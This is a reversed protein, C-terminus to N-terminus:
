IKWNLGIIWCRTPALLGDGYYYTKDFINEIEGFISLRRFAYEARLDAVTYEPVSITNSKNRYVKSSYKGSAVISLAKLPKWYINATASHKAKCALWLGTEDDKAELYTYSGKFKISDHFQWSFALDGGTYTVLGVNQYQSMGDNGMLYTIRDSLRNHFLSLNFSILKAPEVFLALSYNNSTEMDLDPNPNKSSTRDFRQYFSPTNNVSGYTLTVHWKEKKYTMKIEPNYANEFASNINARIGLGLSFPSDPWQFSQSAFASFTKEQQDSFNTGSAKALLFGYGVTLEGLDGTNFTGVLDEEWETVHLDQDIDRSIDDNHKRGDNYSTTSTFRNYNIRMSLNTNSNKKRSFPTPYAPLGSSGRKDKLYDGIFSISKQDDFTYALKLGAQYREKDNNIKYGDTTEYGGTIGATLKGSVMQLNSYGYFTENNGGYTKVNGTLRKARKTTIIIVGGSADQGYRLGGKGRLIEIREVELPSVLDWNIGGHSSTPDNIPRGDVLVKVKSSGHINVSSSGATVGPVNNLVDAMDHANLAKIDEATIVISDNKEDAQVISSSIISFGVILFIISYSIWRLEYLYKKAEEGTSMTIRENNTASIITLWM